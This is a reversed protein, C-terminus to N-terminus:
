PHSIYVTATGNVPVGLRKAAGASLDISSCDCRDTVPVTLTRGQHTVRVPTNCPLFPHAASVEWHRYTTRCATTRGHYWEHYVTATVLRGNGTHHAHVPGHVALMAMLLANRLKM